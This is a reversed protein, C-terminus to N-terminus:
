KSNLQGWADVLLEAALRAGFEAADRRQPDNGVREVMITMTNKLAISTRSVTKKGEVFTPKAIAYQEFMTLAALRRTPQRGKPHQALLVRALEIQDMSTPKSKKPPRPTGTTAPMLKPSEPPTNEQRAVPTSTQYSSWPKQSKRRDKSLEAFLATEPTIRRIRESRKARHVVKLDPQSGSRGSGTNQSQGKTSSTTSKTAQKTPM